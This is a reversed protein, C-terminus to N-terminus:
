FMFRAGFNFSHNSYDTELDGACALAPGCSFEPSTTRFYRYDATLTVTPSINYGLGAMFQYAFVTDNDDALALSSISPHTVDVDINAFGLGVGVYPVLSSNSIHFDYYGNAMFSLVSVDGDAPSSAPLFVSTGEDMDNLFYAIEGEARFAGFDYGLAGGIRFGPDLSTTAFTPFGTVNLDLDSVLSLGLNGSVYMGKDAAQASTTMFTLTFVAVLIFRKM